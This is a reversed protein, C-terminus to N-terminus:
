RTRYGAQRHRMAERWKEVDKIHKRGATAWSFSFCALPFVVSAFKNKM